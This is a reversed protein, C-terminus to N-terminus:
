KVTKEAMQLFLANKDEYAIYSSRHSEFIPNHYKTSNVKTELDTQNYKDYNELLDIQLQVDKVEDLIDLLHKEIKIITSKNESLKNELYIIKKELNQDLVIGAQKDLNNM